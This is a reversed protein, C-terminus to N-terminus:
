RKPATPTSGAYAPIIRSGLLLGSCHHRAGRTHPSSGCSNWCWVDFDYTSGAYAPIIRGHAEALHSREHAGRTHPSSGGRSLLDVGVSLHEGRIRPHDQAQSALAAMGATSGAYAPIIRVCRRGLQAGDHAGRTHPSSGNGVAVRLGFRVHEGRIRPHDTPCHTTWTPRGRAGRTHPSSGRLGVCWPQLEAHEGRIRPHDAAMM